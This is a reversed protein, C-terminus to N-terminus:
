TLLTGYNMSVNYSGNKADQILEYYVANGTENLIKSAGLSLGTGDFSISWTKKPM